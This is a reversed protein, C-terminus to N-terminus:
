GVIQNWELDWETLHQSAYTLNLFNNLPIIDSPAPNNSFVAPITAQINAPYTWENLPILDQVNKGLFWNVFEEDILKHESSALIGLGLVEMWAYEKGQYHFPVTAIRSYNYYANYAPDTIYSYFLQRSGNEFQNFGSTWDGVIKVNRESKWFTTWNQKLVGSYFGIQGLLFSEGTIDIPNEVIYQGGITSNYLDQYTLNNVVSQNLPGSLNVDTTLFSYEYPKIVNSGMYQTLSSNIQSDNSVNFRYFINSREAQYADLNSLGIVIDYQNKGQIAQTLLDGSANTVVIKVHHAAGFDSFVYKLTGNPNSGYSLLGPYTLINIVPEGGNLFIPYEAYIAISAILVLGVVAYAKYSIRRKIIREENM